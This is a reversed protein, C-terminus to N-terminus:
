GEEVLEELNEEVKILCYDKNLEELVRYESEFINDDFWLFESNLDIGETKLDEWKTGRVIKLVELVDDEVKGELHQIVRDTNGDKCHTSLWYVEDGALNFVYLLFEKLFPMQKGEKTLIVGDIDLYIKM